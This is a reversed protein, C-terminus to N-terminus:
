SPQNRWSWEENELSSQSTLTKQTEMHTTFHKTRTRHFIGNTIQYPDCQIQLNCKTTTMKVINITGVWSCPVDRWKSIAYKIEKMLTKYNVTFLEKMKKPLNIGLYNIRKIQLPSHSQHRLKEKQNKMTLIFFHFHNRHVSKTDQLKQLNM